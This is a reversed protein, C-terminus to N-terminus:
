LVDGFGARFLGRAIAILDHDGLRGLVHSTSVHLRGAAMHDPADTDCGCLFFGLFLAGFVPQPGAAGGSPGGHDQIGVVRTVALGHLVQTLNALVEHRVRRELRGSGSDNRSIAARLREWLRRERLGVAVVALTRWWLGLKTTYGLDRSVIRGDRDLVYYTPYGKIKYERGTDAAGLLVPAPLAHREAFAAVSEVTEYDLAIFFVALEDGRAEKLARLNRASARCVKCWPAFFYLVARAAPSPIWRTASDTSEPCRSDPPTPQDGEGLMGRAQYWSLAHFLVIALLLTPIWDRALSRATTTM